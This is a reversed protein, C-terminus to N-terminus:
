PKVPASGSVRFAHIGHDLGALQHLTVTAEARQLTEVQGHGFATHKGQDPRAAGALRGRDLDEEVDEGRRPPTGHQQPDIRPMQTRGNETLDTVDRFALREWRSQPDRLEEVVESGTVRVPIRLELSVQALLQAQRSLPADALERM